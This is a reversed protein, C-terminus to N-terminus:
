SQIFVGSACTSSMKISYPLFNEKLQRAVTRVYVYNWVQVSEPPLDLAVQTVKTSFKIPLMLM